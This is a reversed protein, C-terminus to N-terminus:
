AGGGEFLRTRRAQRRQDRTPRRLDGATIRAQTAADVAEAYPDIGGSCVYQDSLDSTLGRMTKGSLIDRQEAMLRVPDQLAIELVWCDRKAFMTRFRRLVDDDSASLHLTYWRPDHRKVWDIQWRQLARANGTIVGEQIADRATVLGLRQKRPEATVRFSPRGNLGPLKRQYVHGRVYPNTDV